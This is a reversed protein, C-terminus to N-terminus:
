HQEKLEMDTLKSLKRLITLVLESIHSALKPDKAFYGSTTFKTSNFDDFDKNTGHYVIIPNGKEDVVKSNGFWKKFNDLTIETLKLNPSDMGGQVNRVCMPCSAQCRSTVELHVTKIDELNYM